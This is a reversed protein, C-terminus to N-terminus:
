RRGGTASASGDTSEAPASSRDSPSGAAAGAPVPVRPVAVVRRSTVFTRGSDSVGVATVRVAHPLGDSDSDWSRFWEAGDGAELALEVVGPVVPAAVGGADPISFVAMNARRWLAGSAGGPSPGLRYQVSFEGGEPVGYAGRVPRRSRVLILLDDARGASGSGPLIRVRAYRLEPHRVLSALDLAVRSAAADARAAAQAREASRTKLRVLQSTAVTAAGAVMATVLSAVLLEILTFGRRRRTRSDNKTM